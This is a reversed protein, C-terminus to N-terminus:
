FNQRGGRRDLDFFYHRVIVSQVKVNRELKRQVTGGSKRVRDATDGRVDGFALSRLHFQFVGAALATRLAEESRALGTCANKLEVEARKRETIDTSIGCIAYPFGTSGHLPFKLSIYFHLGDDHPVVEEIQIPAAATLVKLDNARFADAMEKPFLDYFDSDKKGYLDEPRAAGMLQAVGVNALVFRSEADKVYIADPLTD